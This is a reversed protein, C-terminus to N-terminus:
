MAVPSEHLSVAGGAPSLAREETGSQQHERRRVRTALLGLQTQDLVSRAPEDDVRRRAHAEIGPIEVASLEREHGRELLAAIRIAAAVDATREAHREGALQGARDGIVVQRREDHAADLLREPGAM